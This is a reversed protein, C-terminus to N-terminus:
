HAEQVAAPVDAPSSDACSSGIEEDVPDACNVLMGILIIAWLPLLLDFPEAEALGRIVFFLMMSVFVMKLPERKLRRIQWYLSGYLGGLMVIGALGYAYFQQLVENEAHRAEFQESDFPPIVKWMSDFGHGIWPKDLAENLVYAWIATRGTLTEAQNGANIYIGYYAEFLGWFVLIVVMLAATLYVKTKRSMSRDQIVLYAESLLFAVLTTKSLSRLLTVALFIAALGWKGDKRRMLYQALFIAFACLNGIQNTNFYDQDGLRLDGGAPMIWAVLALCCTSWIFGKMLSHAVAMVDGARLLLVVMAVDAAMGCWYAISTPLAVTVSWVLSCCSFALFVLVWQVTRLRMMSGFTRKAAGLSSFCVLGLLLFNLALNAETGTRAEAGLVRVSFLVLIARAAFYFGAAFALGSGAPMQLKEEATM